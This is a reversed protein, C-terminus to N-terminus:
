GCGCLLTLCLESLRILRGKVYLSWQGKVKILGRDGNPAKWATSIDLEGVLVSETL